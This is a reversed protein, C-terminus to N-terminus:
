EKGSSGEKNQNGLDPPNHDAKRQTKIGRGLHSGKHTLHSNGRWSERWSTTGPGSRLTTLRDGQQGSVWWRSLRRSGWTFEYFM